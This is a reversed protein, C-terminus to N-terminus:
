VRELGTEAYLVLFVAEDQAKMALTDSPPALTNSHGSGPVGLLGGTGGPVYQGLEEQWPHETHAQVRRLVQERPQSTHTAVVHCAGGYLPSEQIGQCARAVDRERLHKPAHQGLDGRANANADLGRGRIEHGRHLALELRIVPPHLQLYPGARIQLVHALHPTPERVDLDHHIRVGCVLRSISTVQAPQILVAERHDLLRQRVVVNHVVRDQSTLQGSREAEIFANVRRFVSALRQIESATSHDIDLAPAHTTKGLAHACVVQAAVRSYRHPAAPHQLRVDSPRM